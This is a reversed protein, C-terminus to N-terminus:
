ARSRRGFGVLGLMAMGLMLFPAPVPVAQVPPTPLTALPSVTTVVNRVDIYCSPEACDESSGFTTPTLYLDLYDRGTVSGDTAAVHLDNLDTSFASEAAGYLSYDIAPNAPFPSSIRGFLFYENSRFVGPAFQNTQLTLTLPDGTIDLGSTSTVTVASTQYQMVQQDIFPVSFGFVQSVPTGIQNLDISYSISTTDGVQILDTPVSKSDITDFDWFIYDITGTHTVDVTIAAASSAISCSVLTAAVLKHLNIM